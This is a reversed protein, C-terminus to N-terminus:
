MGGRVTTGAKSKSRITFASVPIKGPLDSVNTEREGFVRTIPQSQRSEPKAIAEDSFSVGFSSFLSAIWDM